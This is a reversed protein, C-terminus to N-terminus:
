QDFSKLFDKFSYFGSNQNNLWVAAQVAGEAFILRNYAKHTLEISEREGHFIVTHEGPINGGRISSFGITNKKREELSLQRDLVFSENTLGIEDAIEEGLKIATGSPADKKFRHHTEVIEIDYEKLLSAAQRALLIFSNVGFSMNPACFIKIEKSAKKLLDIHNSKLGTTGIVLNTKNEFALEVFKFLADPVTFDIVVDSNQFTEESTKALDHNLGIHSCFEEDLTERDFIGSIAANPNERASSILNGGMRGKAGAIGIKVKDVM